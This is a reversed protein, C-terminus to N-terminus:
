WSVCLRSILSDSVQLNPTETTAANNFSVDGWGADDLLVLVIHPRGDAAASHLGVALLLCLVVSLATHM